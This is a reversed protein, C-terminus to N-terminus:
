ANGKMIQSFHYYCFCKSMGVFVKVSLVSWLVFLLGIISEGFVSMSRSVLLLSLQIWYSM